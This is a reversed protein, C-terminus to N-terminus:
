GGFMEGAKALKSKGGTIQQTAEVIRRRHWASLEQKLAERQDHTMLEEAAAVNPRKQLYGGQAATAYESQAYGAARNDRLQDTSAAQVLQRADGMAGSVGQAQMTPINAKAMISSQVRRQDLMAPSEGMAGVELLGRTAPAKM